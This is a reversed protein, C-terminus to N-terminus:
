LDSSPHLPDPHTSVQTPTQAYPEVETMEEEGKGGATYRVSPSGEGEVGKGWV